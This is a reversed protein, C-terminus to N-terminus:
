CPEASPDRPLKGRARMVAEIKRKEDDSLAIPKFRVPRVTPAITKITPTTM